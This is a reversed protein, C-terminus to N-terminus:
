RRAFRPAAASEVVRRRSGMGDPTTATRRTQPPGRVLDGGGVAYGARHRVQDVGVWWSSWAPAAESNPPSTPGCRARPSGAAAVARRRGPRHRLHGEGVPVGQLHATLAGLQGPVAGVVRRVVDVDVEMQTTKGRRGSLRRDTSLPPRALARRPRDRLSAPPPRQAPPRSSSSRSGPLRRPVAGM